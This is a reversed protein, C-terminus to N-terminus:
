LPKNKFKRADKHARFYTELAGCDANVVRDPGIEFRSQNTLDVWVKWDKKLANHKNAWAEAKYGSDARWGRDIATVFAEILALEMEDTWRAGVAPAPSPSASWTSINYGLQSPAPSPSPDFLVISQQAIRQLDPNSPTLPEM